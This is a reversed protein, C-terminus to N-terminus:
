RQLCIATYAELTQPFFPLKKGQKAKNNQKSNILNVSLGREREKERGGKKEGERGGM